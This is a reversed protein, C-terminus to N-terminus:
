KLVQEVEVFGNKVKPANALIADTNSGTERTIIDERVVNFVDEEGRTITGEVSNIESVYGLISQLDLLMKQKEEPAITIRALNSLNDLDQETLSM